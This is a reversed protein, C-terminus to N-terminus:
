NCINTNVIVALDVVSILASDENTVVCFSEHVFAMGKCLQNFKNM